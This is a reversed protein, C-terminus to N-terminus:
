IIEDLNCSNSLFVTLLAPINEKPDLFKNTILLHIEDPIKLLSCFIRWRFEFAFQILSLQMGFTFCPILFFSFNTLFLLTSSKLLITGGIYCHINSFIDTCSFAQLLLFRTRCFFVSFVQVSCTLFSSTKSSIYYFFLSM